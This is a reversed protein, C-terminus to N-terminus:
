YKVSIDGGNLPSEPKMRVWESFRSNRPLEQTGPIPRGTPDELTPVTKTVKMAGLGLM